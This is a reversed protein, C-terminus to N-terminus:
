EYTSTLMKFKELQQAVLEDDKAWAHTKWEASLPQKEVEVMSKAIARRVEKDMRSWGMHGELYENSWSPHGNEVIAAELKQLKAQKTAESEILGPAHTRKPPVSLDKHWFSKAVGFFDAIAWRGACNLPIQGKLAAEVTGPPLVEEGMTQEIQAPSFREGNPQLNTSFLHELYVAVFRPYQPNDELPLRKWFGEKAKFVSGLTELVRVSPRSIKGALADELWTSKLGTKAAVDKISYFRSGSDTLEASAKFLADLKKAFITPEIEQVPDLVEKLKTWSQGISKLM